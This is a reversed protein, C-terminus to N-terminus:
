KSPKGKPNTQTRGFFRGRNTTNVGGGKNYSKRMNSKHARRGSSRTPTSGCCNEVRSTPVWGHNPDEQWTTDPPACSWVDTGQQYSYWQEPTHGPHCSCDCFSHRGSIQAM